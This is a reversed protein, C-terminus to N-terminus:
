REYGLMEAVGVAEAEDDFGSIQFPGAPIPEVVQPISLVLDGVIMAFQNQPSPEQSLRATFDSLEQADEAMPDITLVWGGGGFESARPEVQQLEDLTLGDQLDVTVCSPPDVVEFTDPEDSDCPGPGATVVPMIRLPEAPQRSATASDEDGSTLLLTLFLMLGGILLLATIAVGSSIGTGRQGSDDASHLTM